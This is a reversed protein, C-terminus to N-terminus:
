GAPTPTSPAAAVPANFNKPLLTWWQPNASNMREAFAGAEAGTGAFVDGRNPGRRIAGGTDQAVFLRQFAGGQYDGSVFVIAGYPHFAPDVAISGMPTLPVNAAGKPGAAYDSITEEQFFVYSPDANLASKQQAPNQDLWARFNSWTPSPLRGSNRLAGLASNWKYGNQASFQARAESGDTFRLRGSGQVQLNYVDAPHAYGIIQGLFPTIAERKPYPVIRDGNLKGNLTRPAGRLTENDYAEAFAGLDVTIMDPPRKLLPESFAPTWERSASIVPEFYATLRAEGPGIVFQPDFYSEFFWREQGPQIVSAADCANFWDGAKGGYRGGSLSADSSRQRLSICQRKFAALAPAMDASAWGPIDGFAVPVLSFDSPPTIPPLVPPITPTEPGTVPPRPTPTTGGIKIPAPRSSACAGVAIALSVSLIARSIM